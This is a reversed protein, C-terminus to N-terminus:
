TGAPVAGAARIMEIAERAAAGDTIVDDVHAARSRGGVIIGRAM